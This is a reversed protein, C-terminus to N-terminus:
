SSPAVPRLSRGRTPWRQECLVGDVHLDVRTCSASAHAMAAHAEQLSLFQVTNTIFPRVFTVTFVLPSREFFM